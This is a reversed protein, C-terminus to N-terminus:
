RYTNYIPNNAFDQAWEAQEKMEYDRIDDGYDGRVPRYNLPLQGRVKKASKVPLKNKQWKELREQMSPNLDNM